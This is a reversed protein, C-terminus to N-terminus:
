FRTEVATQAILQSWRLHLTDLDTFGAALVQMDCSSADPPQWLVTPFGSVGLSRAQTLESEFATHVAAGTLDGEFQTADLGIEAALAMLTDHDSPDRAELYYARQIAAYLQARGSKEQFGAAIVARCAPYTARKPQRTDWFSFNFQAGTRAKVAHWASQVYAQTQADMPETSDPALGGMLDTVIISPPLRSQFTDWVPRFGWCWSCMPDVILYLQGLM